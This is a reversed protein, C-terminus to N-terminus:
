KAPPTQWPVEYIRVADRIGKVTVPFMELCTSALAPDERLLHNYTTNSIIIRGSGSVSELRSALNVERGFITYNLIHADSGMLGVTALGTNIGTGLQLARLPPKPPMGASLRARNETERATNQTTRRENLDRIARQADIAAWVCDSAHKENPTPAGWFAMVCDGIYKDLTGGHKKVADAVTALYLNVTDLTEQASEEICIEAVDAEIQHERIFDAVGQQMEDTLTTFGRVDAFFITVERRTGGLSLKEAGLLENMVDPSVIKSFVSRVRRQEREEFVVRYTVLSLHEVLMAGAIPFVLPLWYRFEVFAYFGAAVYALLLLLVAASAAFARMQWTLFATLAGLFIILAMETPLSARRIFQNTIVSNAVNWYKSVLLTDKELPTAGHDTLDNGQAASGVVVLKGRFDDRLGNTQGLLRLKDQLLFNEIPARLLRPDDVKLRWDIYFYGDRDVPVVREVNNAGRLAIREHPLDVDAHDLDLNLEQAALVIGMHWVREDTFPKTKAPQGVVAKRSKIDMNGNEDLPIELTQGDKLSLIIRDKKILIDSLSLGNKQAANEILPHWRRVFRFAKVRRLVGDSDKETSIDGPTFANTLFLDPPVLDPEVALLVNGARHMQLAFFDDSEMLSGDAMQVPPHDRRLEGFLVDFAVTKAGQASLEEVLRGYVQRPWYLGFRYGLKGSRVATISSEEISIFALNTAAPAPFHLAARARLDYTMRELREFFDLRLLRVGCVFVLVSVTLIVPARKFPKLKM